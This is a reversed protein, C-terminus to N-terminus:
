ELKLGYGLQSFYDAKDIVNVEKLKQQWIQWEESTIWKYLRKMYGMKNSNTRDYIEYALAELVDSHEAEGSKLIQNYLKRCRTLDNRLYDQTGDPRTVKIPYHAVLDDFMDGKKMETIFRNRVIVKALNIGNSQHSAHILRKEILRQITDPTISSDLRLLDNAKATLRNALLYLLAYEGVTIELKSLVTLEIPIVM